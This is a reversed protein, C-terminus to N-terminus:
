VEKTKGGPEMQDRVMRYDAAMRMLRKPYFPGLFPHELWAMALRRGALQLSLRLRRRGRKAWGVMAERKTPDIEERLDPAGGGSSEPQSM